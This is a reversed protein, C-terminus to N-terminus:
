KSIKKSIKKKFIEDQNENLFKIIQKINRSAQGKDKQFTELLETRSCITQTTEIESLLAKSAFKYKSIKKLYINIDYDEPNIQMNELVFHTILAQWYKIDANKRNEIEDEYFKVLTPFVNEYRDKNIEFALKTMQSDQDRTDEVWDLSDKNEKGSKKADNFYYIKILEKLKKMAKEPNKEWGYCKHMRLFLEMIEDETYPKAKAAFFDKRFCEFKHIINKEDKSIGTIGKSKEEAEIEKTSNNITKFLDKSLKKIFNEEIYADGKTLEDQSFRRTAVKIIETGVIKYNHHLFSAYQFVLAAAERWVNHWETSHSNLREELEANQPLKPFENLAVIEKAKEILKSELRKKKEEPNESIGM